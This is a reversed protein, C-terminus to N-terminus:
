SGARGAPESPSSPLLVWASHGPPVFARVGRGPPERARQSLSAPAATAIKTTVSPPMVATSAIAPLGSDATTHCRLPLPVVTPLRTPPWGVGDWWRDGAPTAGADGDVEGVLGAPDVDGVPDAEGVAGVGLGVAVEGGPAVGVGDPVGLEDRPARFAGPAEGAAL